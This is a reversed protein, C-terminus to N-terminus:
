PGVSTAPLTEASGDPSTEGLVDAVADELYGAFDAQYPEAPIEAADAEKRIQEVFTQHRIPTADEDLVQQNSSDLKSVLGLAKEVEAAPIREEVIGRQYRDFALDAAAAEEPSGQVKQHYDGRVLEVQMLQFFSGETLERAIGMMQENTIKEERYDSGVRDMITNLRDKQSQPLRSDAVIQRSAPLLASVMLSRLNFYVYTAVGGCLLALIVFIILLIKLIGGPRHYTQRIRQHM